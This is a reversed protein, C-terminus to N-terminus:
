GPQCALGPMVSAPKLEQDVVVAVIECERVPASGMSGCSPSFEVQVIFRPSDLSRVGYTQASSACGQLVRSVAGLAQRAPPGSQDGPPLQAAAGDLNGALLADFLRKVPATSYPVAVTPFPTPVLPTGAVAVQVAAVPTGPGASALASVQVNVPAGASAGAAGGGQSRGALFQLGFFGAVALGLLAVVVAM